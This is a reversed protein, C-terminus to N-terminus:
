NDKNASSGTFLSHSPELLLMVTTHQPLARQQLLAHQRAVFGSPSPRGRELQEVTDGDELLCHVGGLELSAVLSTSRYLYAVVIIIKQLFTKTSINGPTRHSNYRM